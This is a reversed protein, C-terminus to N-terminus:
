QPPWLRRRRLAGRASSLGGRPRDREAKEWAAQREKLAAVGDERNKTWKALEDEAMQREASTTAQKLQEKAAAIGKDAGGIWKGKAHAVLDKATKIKALNKRATALAAEAQMETARAKLFAEKNRIDVAPLAECIEAKLEALMRNYRELFEQGADTLPVQPAQETKAAYLSSTGIVLALLAGWILSDIKRVM